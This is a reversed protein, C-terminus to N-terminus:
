GGLAKTAAAGFVGGAAAIATAVALARKSVVVASAAMDGYSQARGEAIEAIRYDAKAVREARGIGGEEAGACLALKINDLEMREDPTMGGDGKLAALFPEWFAQGPDTKGSAMGQKTDEHGAMGTWYRDDAPYVRELPFGYRASMEQAFEVCAAITEPEIAQGLNSQAVEVSIVHLDSPHSSWAPMLEDPVCEVIREPGIGYSAIGAYDGGTFGMRNNPSRCWNLYANLETMGDYWQGGRTCHWLIGDIRRPRVRWKWEHPKVQEWISERTVM